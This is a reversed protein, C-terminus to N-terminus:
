DYERNHFDLSPIYTFDQKEKSIYDKKYLLDKSDQMDYLRTEILDKEKIKPNKVYQIAEALNNFHMHYETDIWDDGDRSRTWYSVEVRYKM